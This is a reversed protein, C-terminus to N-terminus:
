CLRLLFSQANIQDLILAIHSLDGKVCKIFLEEHKDELRQQVGFVTANEVQQEVHDVEVDFMLSFVLVLDNVRGSDKPHKLNQVM